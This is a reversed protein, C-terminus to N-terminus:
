KKFDFKKYMEMMEKVIPEYKAAMEKDNEEDFHFEIVQHEHRDKDKATVYKHKSV